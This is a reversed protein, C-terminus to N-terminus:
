AASTDKRNYSRNLMVRYSSVPLVAICELEDLRSWASRVTWNLVPSEGEVTSYLPRLRKPGRAPLLDNM